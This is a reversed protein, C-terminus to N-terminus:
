EEEGLALAESLRLGARWLIVTLARLRLGDLATGAARMVAVIEEVSPPDAPYRMGKNRPTRGRHYGPLTAPSRRRGAADILLTQMPTAKISADGDDSSTPLVVSSRHAAILVM